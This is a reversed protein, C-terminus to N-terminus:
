PEEAVSEGGEYAKCATTPSDYLADSLSGTPSEELLDGVQIM